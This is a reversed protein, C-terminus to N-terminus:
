CTVLNHYPRAPKLKPSSAGTASLVGNTSTVQMSTTSHDDDAGRLATGAETNIPLAIAEMIHYCAKGSLRELLNPVQSL